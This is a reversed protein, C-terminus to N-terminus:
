LTASCGFCVTIVSAKGVRRAASRSRILSVSIFVTGVIVHFGHFGTAMFFTSTYINDTFGFPAHAYEYAQIFSFLLGLGITAWLGKKLGERDGHILAHHAWTITTGSCLLILTNLLPWGFPDLVAM